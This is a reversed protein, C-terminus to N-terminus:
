FGGMLNHYVCAHFLSPPLAYSESIGFRSRSHAGAGGLLEGKAAEGDGGILRGNDSWNTMKQVHM